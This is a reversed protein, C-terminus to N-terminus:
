EFLQLLSLDFFFLLPAVWEPFAASGTVSGTASPAVTTSLHIVLYSSAAAWAGQRGRGGRGGSAKLAQGHLRGGGGSVSAWESVRM